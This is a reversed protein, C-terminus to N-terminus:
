MLGGSKFDVLAQAEVGRAAALGPHTIKGAHVNVGRALARDAALVDALPNMAVEAIYPLVANTLAYTASRAVLSPLNPVCYHTIGDVVYTPDAHTTPRSTEFCGSQDISIDVLVAGKEMRRVMDRTVGRRDIFRHPVGCCLPYHWLWRSGNGAM